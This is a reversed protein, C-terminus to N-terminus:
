NFRKQVVEVMTCEIRKDTDLLLHALQTAQALLEAKSLLGTKDSVERESHSDDYRLVHVVYHEDYEEDACLQSPVVTTECEETVDDIHFRMWLDYTHSGTTPLPRRTLLEFDAACPSFHTIFTTM